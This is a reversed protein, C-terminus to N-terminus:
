QPNTSSDALPPSMEYNRENMKDCSNQLSTYLRQQRKNPQFTNTLDLSVSFDSRKKKHRTIANQTGIRKPSAVKQKLQSFVRQQQQATTLGSSEAL